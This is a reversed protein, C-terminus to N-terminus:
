NGVDKQGIVTIFSQVCNACGGNTTVMGSVCTMNNECLICDNLMAYNRINKFKRKM